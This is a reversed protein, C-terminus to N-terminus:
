QALSPSGLPSLALLSVVQVLTALLTFAVQQLGFLALPAPLDVSALARLELWAAQLQGVVWPSLLAGQEWAAAIPYQCM